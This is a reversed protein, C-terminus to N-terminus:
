RLYFVYADTGCILVLVDPERNSSLSSAAYVKRCVGVITSNIVKMHSLMATADEARVAIMKTGNFEKATQDVVNWEIFEWAVIFAISIVSIAALVVDRLEM